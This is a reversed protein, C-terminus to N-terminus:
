QQLDAGTIKSLGIAGKITDEMAEATVGLQTGFTALAKVADDDVDTVEQIASGLKQYKDFMQEVNQGTMELSARLRADGKEADSFAKTAFVGLATIPATVAVTLTKGLDDLKGKLDDVQKSLGSGDIKTDIVISGDAM